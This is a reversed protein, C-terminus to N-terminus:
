GGIGGEAGNKMLEILNMQLKCDVSLTERREERRERV